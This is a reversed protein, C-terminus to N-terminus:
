SGYASTRVQRLARNVPPLALIILTIVAEPILYSAQYLISYVWVNMGEPAYAAFYVVGSIVSFVFRGFVGTVYGIYLGYKRSAFLGSLGLAGFALPYDLIVQPVSLMYPEIVFQLIGYAAGALIGYAIGFWYGIICIFFMSLLTISGGMPMKFVKIYSTVFAIAVAMASFVLKKTTSNLNTM